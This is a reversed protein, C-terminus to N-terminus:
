MQNSVNPTEVSSAISSDSPGFLPAVPAGAPGAAAGNQAQAARTVLKPLRQPTTRRALALSPLGRDLCQMRTSPM